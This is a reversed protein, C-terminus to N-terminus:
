FGLMKLAKNIMLKYHSNFMFDSSFIISLDRIASVRESQINSMHYHFTIPSTNHVFYIKSRYNVNLPLCNLTSWDVFYNLYLMFHKFYLYPLFYKSTKLIGM